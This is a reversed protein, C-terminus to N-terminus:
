NVILYGQELYYFNLKHEELYAVGNAKIGEKIATVEDETRLKFTIDSEVDFPTLLNIAEHLPNKISISEM